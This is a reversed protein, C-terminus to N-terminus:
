KGIECNYGTWELGCECKYGGILDICTGRNRCPRDACDNVESFFYQYLVTYIYM